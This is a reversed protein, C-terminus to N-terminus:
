VRFEFNALMREVIYQKVNDAMKEAKDMGYRIVEVEADGGCEECTETLWGMKVCTCTEKTTRTEKKMTGASKSAFSIWNVTDKKIHSIIVLYSNGDSFNLKVVNGVNFKYMLNGGHIKKM